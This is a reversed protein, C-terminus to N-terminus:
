SRHCRYHYQYLATATTIALPYPIRYHSFLLYTDDTTAVGIETHVLGITITAIMCRRRCTHQHEGKEEVGGGEVEEGSPIVQGTRKGSRMQDETRRSSAM